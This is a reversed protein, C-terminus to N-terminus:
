PNNISSHAVFSNLAGIAYNSFNWQGLIIIIALLGQIHNAKGLPIAAGCLKRENSNKQIKIGTFLRCLLNHNAKL